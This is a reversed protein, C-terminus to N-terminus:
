DFPLPHPASQRRRTAQGDPSDYRLDVSYSSGDWRYIGVELDPNM